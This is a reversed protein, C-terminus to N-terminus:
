WNEEVQPFEEVSLLEFRLITSKDKEQDKLQQLDYKEPPKRQFTTKLKIKIPMLVPNHDSGVDAGPYTKVNTVANKCRENIMIYDIHNRVIDGPSKWIYINRLHHETNTIILNKGKCFEILRRGRENRKGLGYKGTTPYDSEHGVKGSFDGMLINVEDSETVM